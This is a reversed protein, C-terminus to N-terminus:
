LGQENIATNTQALSMQDMREAVFFPALVVPLDDAVHM